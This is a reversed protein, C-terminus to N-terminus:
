SHGTAGCPLAACAPKVPVREGSARPAYLVGKGDGSSIAGIKEHSERITLALSIDGVVHGVPKEKLMTSELAARIFSVSCEGAVQPPPPM